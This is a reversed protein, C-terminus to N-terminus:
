QVKWLLLCNPWISGLVGELEITQKWLASIVPGDGLSVAEMGLLILQVSPLMSDRHGLKHGQSFGPQFKPCLKHGELM